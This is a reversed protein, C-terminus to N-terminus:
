CSAAPATVWCQLTSVVGKVKTTAKVDSENVTFVYDGAAGLPGIKSTATLVFAQDSDPSVSGSSVCSYTFYKVAPTTPMVVVPAAILTTTTCSGANGYQKNDQYYQEMKVRLDSLTNYAENIRSKNMYENFQPLAIATLIGIVAIVIMLEILTFGSQRRM